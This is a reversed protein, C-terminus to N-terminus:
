SQGCHGPPDDPMTACPPPSAPLEPWGCSPSPWTACAAMIQPGAATRVQSHDEDFDIDRIWHLRDEIGWQGRIIAALQGPTAQTVSQSTVAYCTERSWKGKV